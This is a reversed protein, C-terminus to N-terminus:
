DIHTVHVTLPKGGISPELCQTYVDVARDRVEGLYTSVFCSRGVCGIVEFGKCLMELTVEVTRGRV